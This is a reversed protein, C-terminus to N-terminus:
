AADGGGARATFPRGCRGAALSHLALVPTRPRESEIAHRADLLADVAKRVREAAAEVDAWTAEPHGEIWQAVARLAVAADLLARGPKM